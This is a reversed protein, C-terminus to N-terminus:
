AKGYNKTQLPQASRIQAIEYQMREKFDSNIRQTERRVEEGVEQMLTDMQADSPDEDWTFRYTMDVKSEMDM